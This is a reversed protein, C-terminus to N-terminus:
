ESILQGKVGRKKGADSRKKRPKKKLPSSGDQDKNKSGSARDDGGVPDSGDKVGPTIAGEPNCPKKMKSAFYKSAFYGGAPKSTGNEFGKLEEKIEKLMEEM